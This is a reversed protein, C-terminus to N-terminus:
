ASMVRRQNETEHVMDRRADYSYSKNEILSNTIGTRKKRDNKEARNPEEARHIKKMRQSTQADRETTLSSTDAQTIRIRRRHRLEM